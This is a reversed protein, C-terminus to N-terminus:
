CKSESEFRNNKVLRHILKTCPACMRLEDIAEEEDGRRTQGKALGLSQSKMALRRTRVTTRPALRRYDPCDSIVPDTSPPPAVSEIRTGLQLALCAGGLFSTCTM